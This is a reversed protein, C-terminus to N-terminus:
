EVEETKVEKESGTAAWRLFGIIDALEAATYGASTPPHKWSQDRKIKEIQKSDFTRIEPPNKSLDWLKMTEGEKSIVRGPFAKEAIPKVDQVTETMTMKIAMVMGRPMALSAIQKLDPGVATGVGAMTHCTGCALGKPSKLFLAKGREAQAKAPTQGQLSCSGAVSGVILIALWNSRWKM